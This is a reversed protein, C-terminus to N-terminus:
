RIKIEDLNNQRFINKEAVLLLDYYANRFMGAIFADKEEIKKFAYNYILSTLYLKDYVMKVNVDLEKFHYKDKVFSLIEELTTGYPVKKEVGRIWLSTVLGKLDFEICSRPALKLKNIMEFKLYYYDRPVIIYKELELITDELRLDRFNINNKKSKFNNLYLNSLRNGLKLFYDKDQILNGFKLLEEKIIEKNMNKWQLLLQDM